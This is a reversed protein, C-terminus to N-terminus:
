RIVPFSRTATWFVRVEFQASYRRLRPVVPPGWETRCIVVELSLIGNGKHLSAQVPDRLNIVHHVYKNRPNFVPLRRRCLAGVVNQAKSSM